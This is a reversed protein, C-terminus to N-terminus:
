IKCEIEGGCVRCRLVNREFLSRLNSVNTPLHSDCRVCRMSRITRCVLQEFRDRVDNFELYCADSTLWLVMGAATRLPVLDPADRRAFQAIVTEIIQLAHFTLLPILGYFGRVQSQRAEDGSFVFNFNEIETRLQGARTILHNAKQWAPELGIRSKKDFRIEHLLEPRVWERYPTASMAGRIKAIRAAEDSDRISLADLNGAIFERLFGVPDALMWELYFLNEKFPKRLLAVAPTLVDRRVCDVAVAVFDVFDVALARAIAKFTLENAETARGHTRLGTM